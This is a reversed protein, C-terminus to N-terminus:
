SNLSFVTCSANSLKGNVYDTWSKQTGESSSDSQSTAVYYASSAQNYSASDSTFQETGLAAYYPGDTRAWKNNAADWEDGLLKVLYEGYTANKEDEKGAEPQAPAEPKTSSDGGGTIKDYLKKVGASQKLVDKVTNSDMGYQQAITDVDSSGLTEQAYANADEDSVTIGEATVADNLIKNRVYSITSEAAPVNYTNDDNKASDLSSSNQIVERATVNKTQGNSTYSAVATDLEAESLTTKGNLSGGGIGALLFRGALCGLVLAVVAAIIVVPLGYGKPAPAPASVSSSFDAAAEAAGVSTATDPAQEPAAGENLEKDDFEAM